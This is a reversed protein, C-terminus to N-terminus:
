PSGQQANPDIVIFPVQQALISPQPLQSYIILPDNALKQQPLQTHTTLSPDQKLPQNQKFSSPKSTVQRHNRKM